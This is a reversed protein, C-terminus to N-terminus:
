YDQPHVCVNVRSCVCVCVCVSMQVAVIKLFWASALSYGALAQNLFWEVRDVDM